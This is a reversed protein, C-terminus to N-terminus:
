KDLEAELAEVRQRLDVVAGALVAELLRDEVPGQEGAEMREALMAAEPTDISRAAALIKANWEEVMLALTVNNTFTSM